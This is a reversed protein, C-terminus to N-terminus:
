TSSLLLDSNFYSQFLIEKIISELDPFDKNKFIYTYNIESNDYYEIENNSLIPKNNYNCVILSDNTLEFENIITFDYEYNYFTISHMIYRIYKTLKAQLIYYQNNNFIKNKIIFIIKM